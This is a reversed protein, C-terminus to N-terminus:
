RTRQNPDGRVLDEFEALLVGVTAFIIALGAPQLDVFLLSMGVGLGAFGCVRTTQQLIRRLAMSLPVRATEEPSGAYSDPSPSLRVGHQALDDDSM